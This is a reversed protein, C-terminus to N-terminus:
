AGQAPELEKLKRYLNRESIGLIEAAKQRHGKCQDLVQRIYRKEVDELTPLRDSTEEGQFDPRVRIGMPLHDPDVTAGDSLILAREIVNQLERVNGPWPYRQLVRMAEPTLRAQRKPVIPSNKIFHEVLLIIDGKRERLPPIHISFVNLRYYLDERFEGERMMEELSRNTATILRVDVKIDATGGVRRFVGTEIVRLLKVQLAPTLEGIEDLFITGRDAVEFLGHKLRSAGTYAGKEHGFLESQLLNEHLSACDVVVFPQRARRSMRHVARSVLEKGVGSEGRILVTSDTEAVREVMGLLSRVEPSQGIFSDSPQLRSVEHRLAHSGRQLDQKELAKNLTVEITDLKCPKTLFDHAGLKIARVGEHVTGFATLMVVETAPASERIEALLDIGNGDPLKLDLLVLNFHQRSLLERADGVTAAASVAYGSHGLEKATQTRFTDEDDVLLLTPEAM